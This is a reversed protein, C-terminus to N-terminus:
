EKYYCCATCGDCPVDMAGKEGRHERAAMEDIKEFLLAPEGANRAERTEGSVLDYFRIPKAAAEHRRKAEGMNRKVGRRDPRRAAPSSTSKARPPRRRAM